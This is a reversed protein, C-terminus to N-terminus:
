ALACLPVQFYSYTKYKGMIEEVLGGGIISIANAWKRKSLADVVV